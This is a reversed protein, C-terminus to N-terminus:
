RSPNTAATNTDRPLHLIAVAGGEPPAGLELSGAHRVAIADVIALGLGAGAVTGPVYREGVHHVV